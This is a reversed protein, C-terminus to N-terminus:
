GAKAQVAELALERLRRLDLKGTGLYPLSEVRVFQEARPKWLPPLDSNALGEVCTRLQEEELTHLVILREGKKEDPVSSVAFVPEIAGSLQQLKEEVRIHPVMEGGIKSFRSLRDTIFVFGDEDMVAIDGTVYWGDRLVEATKQPQQWYERMVNPGRVLLMGAEGPPLPQGTEPHVIRASMGPLPHGISGRKAGVQRFYAARYDRTNVAVVPSCETSGYGELPRIGFHDEFTQAIREPLKEAGAIVWRLSGFDEPACRRAYTNLFTPTAVMMTVRFRSVMAGIARADLPNPYYVVGIGSVAPLCLTVTFGFSHFFPLIGLIRDQARLAFVQLMQEVNAALNWQTLVVGKPQGTSGSSFVITAIDELSGPRQRGAFKEVGTPHLLAAALALCRESSRPRAAIDELLLARAPPEVHVRELFARSTVVTELACQAASAALVEQSATYNLNIPIKGALLAAFNVLAGAISPPLMIGVMSQGRWADRLRRALFLSKVLAAGYRLKPTNADAMALRLPHRHATRVLSRAVTRTERKRRAFSESGLEEVAERVQQAHAGSPLPRGFTVRIPYRLRQPLKWLFKGGSYSFVSGWVGDLYVPIIPADLGKMIRELGRRFPLLLGTRTLQGEPFIAVLEGNRIAESATRLGQIMERPHQQSSIPIVGLIKAGPKILPHEYYQQFMLFRIPRGVTAFLFLADIFSVHNGVLLAGSRQPVNQRGQADIRYLSHTALFLILRLAAEPLLYLVYITGALTALSAWLFVGSARVGLFHTMLYYTGFAAAIGVWSWWNAAAIVSGKKDEEPRHQILANIPVAFFGASFGLATLLVLATNYRLGHLALALGLVTMGLSGLPILGYEITGHSLYGAAVSGLGIGIAVGAQLIGTRTDSAGLTDHGYFFINYQLLAGMFWFYTNGILALWLIRDARIQRTQRAVEALFNAHFSKAPDAAPVRTITHSTVIGLGALAAFILGSVAERGRFVDAMIAACMTGAIIAVFTGLELIGNGWSLREAPVLEPLLGYKSPGFIAAQTSVLFVAAMALTINVRLLAVTALLMVGLEFYKTGMTVLRKSFRDALFGGAMSFLIFPVSFLTGVLLSMRDRVAASINLALIIFIVLNKLGNENFAGLFQTAILSWFGRRWNPPPSQM